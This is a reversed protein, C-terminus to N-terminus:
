QLVEYLVEHPIDEITLLDISSVQKRNKFDLIGQANSLENGRIFAFEVGKRNVPNMYCVWTKRYYFPVRYRIKSTLEFDTILMHHLYLMVERQTGEFDYIYNEVASM